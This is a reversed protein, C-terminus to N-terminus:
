VKEWNNSQSSRQVAELLQIGETAEELGFCEKFEFIQNNKYKNLEEAIDLYYNAFAEIFGAPHGVKFRSYRPHNCIEVDMNGRDIKWRRGKIDAINLIEPYEQIWEAAGEQGYIRIKLGNREGIAIKSYWMHCSINNTYEVICNINDIITSFNGMSESKAVVNLPTEDTLYKVFMHLHVGLDLSLTPIKYDKLRWQQPVIPNGGKDVRIYGEQPMEIQIHNIKGLSGNIILQRLEKIMPFGLYNYIVTLFTHQRDLANKIKNIENLNVGLAKECIVPIGSEICQVVQIAHQDTPTLIVIADLNDKEHEILHELSDYTRSVPVDYFLSSNLNNERNKSFCGAVLKYKNDMEIAAFHATGVASTKSGGLFAVSIKEGSQKM